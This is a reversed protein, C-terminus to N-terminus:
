KGPRTPRLVVRWLDRGPDTRVEVSHGRALGVAIVHALLSPNDTVTYDSIM